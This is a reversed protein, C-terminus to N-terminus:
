IDSARMPARGVEDCLINSARKPARGIDEHFDQTCMSCIFEDDDVDPEQIKESWMNWVFDIRQKHEETIDDQGKHTEPDHTSDIALRETQSKFTEAGIISDLPTCADFPVDINAQMRASNSLDIEELHEFDFMNGNDKGGESIELNRLPKDAQFKIKRIKCRARNKQRKSPKVSVCEPSQDCDIQTQSAPDAIDSDEQSAIELINFRNVEAFGVNSTPKLTPMRTYFDPDASGCVTSNSCM